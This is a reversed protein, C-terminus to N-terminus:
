EKENKVELKKVKEKLEDVEAALDRAPVPPILYGAAILTAEMDSWIQGHQQDFQEKTLGSTGAYYGESLADHQAKYNAKIEAETPM